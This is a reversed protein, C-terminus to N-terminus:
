HQDSLNFITEFQGCADRGTAMPDDRLKATGNVARSRQGWQPVRAAPREGWTPDATWEDDVSLTPRSLPKRRPPAWFM